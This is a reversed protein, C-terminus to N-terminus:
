KAEKMEVEAAANRRVSDIGNMCSPKRTYGESVLIIEGNKAKLRFRFEGKKDAYVEFKPNKEKVFGEVTQDELAAKPACSKVSEIGGLCSKESTYTESSGIVAGNDAKLVFHFGSSTKQYEYKGM